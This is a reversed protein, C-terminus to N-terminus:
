DLGRPKKTQRDFDPLTGSFNEFRVQNGIYTAGVRGLAGQRNKAIFIDAYNKWETEPNDAEERHVFLVVDADQEISGSDRLHSLKPRRAEETKRSLQSLLLVSINLEKALVKLSRTIVEIQQHREREEGAMLQLYDLVLVDMGHKRKHRRAFSAAQYFSLGPKDLVFLPLEHLKASGSSLRNWGEESLNATLINRLDLRGTSALARDALEGAVMEMSLYLVGYGSVAAEIATHMSLATKGMGPRAALVVLQGRHLGGNLIRDLDLLGTTIGKREADMRREITDFHAAVIKGIQEPEDNRTSETISLLQSQAKDIAESIPTRAYTLEQLEMAAAIIKRRQSHERVIASYRGINAASPTASTLDALYQLGGVEDLKGVVELKEAVTIVDFPKGGAADSLIQSFIIRNAQNYFDRESLDGIRDIANNDLLMGGIVCQEAEISHPPLKLGDMDIM